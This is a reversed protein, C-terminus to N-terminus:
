HAVAFGLSHQGALALRGGGGGWLWDGWLARRQGCSGRAKTGYPVPLPSPPLTAPWEWAVARSVLVHRRPQHALPSPWRWAQSLALSCVSPVGPPAAATEPLPSWLSGAAAVLLGREPPGSPWSSPTNLPFGASVM